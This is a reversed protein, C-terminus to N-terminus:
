KQFIEQALKIREKVPMTVTLNVESIRTQGTYEALEWQSIGLIKATKELSLGHEYIRSAKNIEAKRFVEEVSKRFDGTLKSIDVRIKQLESQLNDVQNKELYLISYDIHKQFHKFFSNWGPYEKYQSRELIKSLSYVIVAILVNDTDQYISSAHITQNSLQKLKLSDSEKLALKAQRLVQLVHETEQM